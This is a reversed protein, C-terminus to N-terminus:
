HRRSSSRRRVRQSTCGPCSSRGELKRGKSHRRLKEEDAHHHDHRKKKSDKHNMSDRRVHTSSRPRKEEVSSKASAESDGSGHRRTLPQSISRHTTKSSNKSLCNRPVGEAQGSYHMNPLSANPERSSLFPSMILEMWRPLEEHVM